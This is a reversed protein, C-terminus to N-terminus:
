MRNINKEHLFEVGLTPFRLLYFTDLVYKSLRKFCIEELTHKSSNSTRTKSVRLFMEPSQPLIFKVNEPRQTDMHCNPSRMLHRSEAKEQVTTM